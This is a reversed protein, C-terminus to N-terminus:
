KIDIVQVKFVLISNAPVSTTGDDLPTAGYGLKSPIILYGESGKAFFRLGEEFGEIVKGTGFTFSFPDRGKTADFGKGDLFTGEYHLSLTSGNQPTKGKGNKTLVYMLGSATKTAKWKKAAVFDAMLKQDIEFQAQKKREFEAREKAELTKMHQDYAQQSLIEVIELEFLLPTNPAIVDGAGTSGYGLHPPVFLQVKTGVSFNQLGLDWGEIVQRYGLQFIFPENEPSQDFIKENLLKGVYKVKVYDGRKPMKGSGQQGVVYFLGEKTRKASLNKTAIYGEISLSDQCNKTITNNFTNTKASPIEAIFLSLSLSVVITLIKSTKM